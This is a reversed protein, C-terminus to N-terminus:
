SVRQPQSRTSDEQHVPVHAKERSIWGLVGEGPSRDEWQGEGGVTFTPPSGFDQARQNPQHNRFDMKPKSLWVDPSQTM